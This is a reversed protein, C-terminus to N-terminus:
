RIQVSQGCATLVLKWLLIGQRLAYKTGFAWKWIWGGPLVTGDRAIVRTAILSAGNVSVVPTTIALTQPAGAIGPHLTGSAIGATGPNSGAGVSQRV